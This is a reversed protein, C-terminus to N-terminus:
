VAIEYSAQYCRYKSRMNILTHRTGASTYRRGATGVYAQLYYRLGGMHLQANHRDGFVRSYRRVPTGVNLWHSAM